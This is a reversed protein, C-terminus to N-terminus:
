QRKAQLIIHFTDVWLGLEPSFLTFLALGVKLGRKSCEQSIANAGAHTGNGGIVFIMNMGQKEIADVIKPVDGGGRGCSPNCESGATLNAAM